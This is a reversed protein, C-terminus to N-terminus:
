VEYVMVAPPCCSNVDKLHLGKEYAERIIAMVLYKTAEHYRYLEPVSTLHKPIPTRKTSVFTRYEKGIAFKIEETAANLITCLENYDTKSITPIKVCWQNDSTHGILGYRELSPMYAVFENPIDTTELPINKHIHWLLPVIHTFYLEYTEGYRHPCDWLTTDFEHLRVEKVEDFFVSRSTRHGGHIAYELSKNYESMDYGADIALAQALWWGGDRRNPFSPATIKDTGYHAFDQLAKLLAYRELKIREAIGMNQVFPLQSIMDLMKQLINWVAPFHKHAFELQDKFHALSNQPKNIIFDSYVKGGDTQVMLEGDVLKQIIPEIYAAPIGIAKSLESITVPKEYALILLNQAILDGEVLSIPERKPGDAGGYSLYLIGPLCNEKMDMTEFGKKIQHRGASLRSKVTGEPINLANAIESVSQNGYYFRILVERTIYALHNLEKRVKSAEVSDFFDTNEEAQLHLCEDLCITIPTRYKKRLADNRKHYLTNTLWTKLHRITGGKRLFAFAALMTESVLDEADAQSNCQACALRMLYDYFQFINQDTM